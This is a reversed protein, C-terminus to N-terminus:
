MFVFAYPFTESANRLIYKYFWYFLVVGLVAVYAMVRYKKNDFMRPIMAITIINVISFYAAVREGYVLFMSIQHLILYVGSSTFFFDFLRNNKQLYKRGAILAGMELLLFLTIMTTHRARSMDLYWLYKENLLGMSIVLRCLPNFLLVLLLLAAFLFVQRRLIQPQIRDALAGVKGCASKVVSLAKVPKREKPARGKCIFCRIKEALSKAKLVCQKWDCHIYWHVAFIGLGLLASTHFLVAVAVCICYRLYKKQTIDALAAFVIAMAMYQRMINLSHSYYLLYFLVLVIAPNVEKRFRWAGIYFGTMIVAHVLFLFVSYNGFVQAVFGCLLAFLPEGYGISMYFKMYAGLSEASVAGAWYRKLNFYNMTDIGIEYDRLGALLTPILISLVSFLWFLQKKQTKNAYHAFLASGAFCALYIM